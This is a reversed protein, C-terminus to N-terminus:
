PNGLASVDDVSALGGTGKVVVRIATAPRGQDYSALLFPAAGKGDGVASLSRAAVQWTGDPSRVDLEVSSTRGQALGAEGVSVQRLSRSGSWAWEVSSVGGPSSWVPGISALEDTLDAHGTGPGILEYVSADDHATNMLRVASPSGSAYALLCASDLVGPKNLDGLLLFSANEVAIAYGIHEPECQTLGTTFAFGVTQHGSFLATSSLYDTEVRDSPSGLASLMSVYRSGAFRSSHQGLDFLYDRPLQAALPVVVLGCLVAIGAGRAAKLHHRRAAWSRVVRWMEALGVAYWAVLLPLVLIARRENVEPWFVTELLYVPVVLLAADRHRRAWVIGGVAVAVTVHWSLLIWLDRAPGTIPLPSLYPVLTAPIATALLHWLSHPLVHVVRDLLNGHYYGGLESSYRSGILPVGATARAVLVPVLLAGVVTVVALSRKVGQRTRPSVALCLVIGAVVGIGAEKLWILGASGVAVGAGALSWLSPQTVWRDVMLLVALLLVLFPTEAMVMSGFTALPPGLAMLLLAAVRTREGVGRRGLYSWLLPFLAAYCAVSFLRMPVYSHPWSWALPAILASYGPPYFEALVAGSAVHARLGHGAALVRAGLIYSADDDFSGVSYLPAILAVHLLGLAAPAGVLLWRRHWWPVRRAADGVAGPAASEASRESLVM